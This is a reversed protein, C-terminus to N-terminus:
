VPINKKADLLKQANEKKTLSVAEFVTAFLLIILTLLLLIQIILAPFTVLIMAGIQAGALTTGMMITVINYDILVMKPKEPHKSRLNLFFTALSTVFITFSSLAIAAKTGFHFFVMDMPVTVSGGGIGAINCLAKFIAFAFWGGIELRTAPFVKKHNCVGPTKVGCKFYPYDDCDRDVVWSTTTSLPM